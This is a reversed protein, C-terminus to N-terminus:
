SAIKTATSQQLLKQKLSKPNFKWSHFYWKDYEPDFPQFDLSRWADNCILEIKNDRCIEITEENFKNFPPIFKDCRLFNCSSVISMEQADRHVKTHDVHFLGHSAIEGPIYQTVKMMKNVNYFWPIENHKFPVGPYIYGERNHKGFLTVGSLIKASPHLDRIVQYLAGLKVLNTNPNVDHNQFELM